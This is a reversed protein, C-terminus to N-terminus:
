SKGERKIRTLKLPFSQGSQTWTGDFFDDKLIGKYSGQIQNMKMTLENEKFAVKDLKLGYAGQNPSDMTATLVTGKHSIHFIVKLSQGPVEISGSWNGSAENLDNQASAQLVLLSLFVISFFKM